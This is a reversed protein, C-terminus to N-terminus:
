LSNKMKARYENPTAGMTKKFVIFFYNKNDWGISEIIEDVVIDTEALLVCAKKLKLHVIYEPISMSVACKFLKNLYAPTLRFMESVSNSTIDPSLYNLDIYDIVKKIILNTKNNRNFNIKETVETFFKLFAIRIEELTEIKDLATIFAPYSEDLVQNGNKEIISLTNFIMSSIYSIAIIIENCRCKYLRAEISAYSSKLKELDSQKLADLLVEINLSAVDFYDFSHKEIDQQLVVCRYGYVLRYISINILDKYSTPIEAVNGSPNGIFASLSVNYYEFFANVIETILIKMETLVESFSEEKKQIIAIIHDNGMDVIECPFKRSVIESAINSLSYRLLIQDYENNETQFSSYHDIKFMVLFLCSHLDIQLDLRKVKSDINNQTESAGSLLSRLFEQRLIIKNKTEDSQFTKIQESATLMSTSIRDFENMNGTQQSEHSFLTLSKKLLSNVPSYLKKSYFISILAGLLIAIFSIIATLILVKIVSDAIYHYPITNVIIWDPSDTKIYFVLSKIGDVNGTFYGNNDTFALLRSIYPQHSLDNMFYLDNASAKVIGTKDILFINGIINKNNEINVANFIWSSNINVVLANELGSNLNSRETIIYSLVNATANTDPNVLIERPLPNYLTNVTDQLLGPLEKDFTNEMTRILVTDTGIHYINNTKGNYIELSRIFPVSGILNSLASISSLTDFIYPQSNYMVQRCSANNFLSVSFSKAYNNIQSVNSNIQKLVNLNSKNIYDLTFSKFSFYLSSSLVLLSLLVISIIRILLMHFYTLNTKFLAM